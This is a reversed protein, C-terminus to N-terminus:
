LSVRQLKEMISVASATWKLQVKTKYYAVVFQEIMAVLEKVFSSCRRIAKQTILGL